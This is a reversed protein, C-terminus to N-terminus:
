DDAEQDSQIEGDATVDLERDKKAGTAVVVAFYKTEKGDEYDLVWGASKMTGKPYKAKIAAAVKAPIAKLAIETEILLFKGDASLTADIAKAGDKFAVDYTTKGSQTVKQADTLEARPFRGKVADVVAKPLDKVPIEGDDARASTVIALLGIMLGLRFGLKM